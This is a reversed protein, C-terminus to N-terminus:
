RMEGTGSGKGKEEDLLAATAASSSRTQATSQGGEGEEESPMYVTVNRHAFEINNKQFAEQLRRYVEKRMVFQEGPPTTFKVRMIMASDDMQLVGQSKLKGILRPGFEEDALLEKYIKKVIKRVKDVDTDYKVRFDLKMIIYDRSFNVVTGVKGFPVTQVMGRHHRLRVARLSIQEVVGKATGTDIYDGVRFADDIIFFIGAFIDTVLSQAGFSIALGLIGAGAILPAVNLGMASLISIIAIVLTIVLIFKRLLLLLTGRRSGGKGGEDAEEDSDPMEELIRQDVWGSFFQWALYFLVAIFVSTLVGATFMRGIAVDIRFLGLLFFLLLAALLGRYTLQIQHGYDALRIRGSRGGGKTSRKASRSFVMELLKSGWIDLSFFIPITLLGILIKGFHITGSDLVRIEWLLTIMALFMAGAMPYYRAAMCSLSQVQSPEETSCLSLIIRNRSKYIMAGLIITTSIIILGIMALFVSQDSGSKKLIIGSRALLIEVSCLGLSWRSLFEAVENSFPLIRVDESHGPALFLLVLFLVVRIYYSALIYNSAITATIGKEPFIALYLVFVSLVFLSLYFAEILLRLSINLLKRSLGGPSQLSVISRGVPQLRRRVFLELVIGAGITFCIQVIVFFPTEGSQDAAVRDWLKKMEAPLQALGKLQLQFRDILEHSETVTQQFPKDILRAAMSQPNGSHPEAFGNGPALFLLLTMLCFLFFGVSRNLLLRNKM